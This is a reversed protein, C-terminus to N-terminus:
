RKKGIIMKMASAGTASGLGGLIAGTLCTIIVMGNGSIGGFLEGIRSSMIGANNSDMIYASIGWMLGLGIFGALFARVTRMQATAAVILSILIGSWWPGFSQGFYAAVGIILASIVVKM